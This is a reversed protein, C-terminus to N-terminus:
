SHYIILYFLKELNKVGNNEHNVRGNVRKLEIIRPYYKKLRNMVDIQVESQVSVTPVGPTFETQLIWPKNVYLGFDDKLEAPTDETVNGAITSCLWRGDLIRSDEAFASPSVAAISTIALLTCLLLTIGKRM